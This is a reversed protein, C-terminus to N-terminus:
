SKLKRVTSMHDNSFNESYSFTMITIDILYTDTHSLSTIM